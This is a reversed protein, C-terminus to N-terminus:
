RHQRGEPDPARAPDGDGQRGQADRTSAYGAAEQLLRAKEKAQAELEAGVDNPPRSGFQATYAEPAHRQLLSFLDKADPYGLTGAVYSFTLGTANLVAQAAEICEPGIGQGKIVLISPVKQPSATPSM